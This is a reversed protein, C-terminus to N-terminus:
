HVQDAPLNLLSFSHGIWGANSGETTQECREPIRAAVLGEREELVVVPPRVHGLIDGVVDFSTQDTGDGGCWM